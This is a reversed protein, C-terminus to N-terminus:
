KAHGYDIYYQIRDLLEHFGIYAGYKIIVAGTLLTDYKDYTLSRCSDTEGRLYLNAVHYKDNLM